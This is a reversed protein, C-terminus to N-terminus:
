PKFRRSSSPRKSSITANESSSRNMSKGTRVYEDPISIRSPKEIAACTRASTSRSSSTNATPSSAKWRLHTSRIM